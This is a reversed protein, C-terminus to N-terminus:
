FMPLFLFFNIFNIFNWWGGARLESVAEGSGAYFDCEDKLNSAVRRFIDYDTGYLQNFYAIILRKKMSLNKVEDLTTFTKIPDKLQDRVYEVLAEKSRQGRYERKMVDGNLSVKLTPYKTIQFRKAVDVEADCDVRGMAVRGSEGFEEKVQFVCM